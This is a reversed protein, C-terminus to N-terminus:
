GHPSSEEERSLSRKILVFIADLQTMMYLLIKVNPLSKNGSVNFLDNRQTDLEENARM